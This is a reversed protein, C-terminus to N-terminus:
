RELVMEYLALAPPPAEALPLVDLVLDHPATTNLYTREAATIKSEVARDDRDIFVAIQVDHGDRLMAVKSVQPISWLAGLLRIIPASQRLTAASPWAPPRQRTLRAPRGPQVPSSDRSAQEQATVAM